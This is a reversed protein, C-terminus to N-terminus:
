RHARRDARHERLSRTAPIRAAPAARRMLIRALKVFVAVLPAFATRM